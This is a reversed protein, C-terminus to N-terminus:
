KASASFYGPPAKRFREASIFSSREPGTFRSNSWSMPYWLPVRLRATPTARRAEFPWRAISCSTSPRPSGGCSPPFSKRNRSIRPWRASARERFGAAKLAAEVAANAATLADDNEDQGSRQHQLAEKFSREVEEWDERKTAMLAPGVVVADLAPSAIKRIAGEELRYGFRHRDFLDNIQSEAEPLAAENWETTPGVVFHEREGEECLIEIMDLFVEDDGNLLAAEADMGDRPWGFHKVCAGHLAGRFQAGADASEGEEIVYVVAHRLEPSPSNELPGASGTEEM